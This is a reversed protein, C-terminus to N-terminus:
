VVHAVGVAKGRGATERGTGQGLHLSGEGRRDVLLRSAPPGSGVAGEKGPGASLQPLPRKGRLPAGKSAGSLSGFHSLVGPHHFSCGKLLDEGAFYSGSYASAGRKKNGKSM